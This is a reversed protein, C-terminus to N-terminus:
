GEQRLEFWYFAHPGFTLLYPLEGIWPFPIRGFLELPRYGRYDSLDLEAPQCFRSLNYACFLVTGEHERLFAFVHPNNPECFCITGRGFAPYARRVGMLRRM